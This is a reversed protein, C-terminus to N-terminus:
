LFFSTRSWAEQPCSHLGEEIALLMVRAVGDLASYRDVLYREAYDTLEPVSLRDSALNQWIIVDDGSTVKQVEPPEAEEPLNDRLRAIRDRIDNAANDIDRNISFEITVESEGDRSLSEIYVIGEVGSIRQEVLQTIRTEVINAPAGPYNVEVTVIPPDIDPYERLALRTFSVLGFAVLLLSLVSAFVPRKVSIDSLIM